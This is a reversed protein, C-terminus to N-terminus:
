IGSLGGSYEYVAGVRYGKGGLVILVCSFCM